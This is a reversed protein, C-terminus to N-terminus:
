IMTHGPSKKKILVIDPFIKCTLIYLNIETKDTEYLLVLMICVKNIFM